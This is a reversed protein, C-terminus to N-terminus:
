KKTDIKSRKSATDSESAHLLDDVYFQNSICNKAEPSCNVVRLAQKLAYNAIAPSSVAGFVHVKLRYEVPLQNPDNKSFWFFRLFDYHQKPVKIQYFMKAIDGIIAVKEQCFRLLVALLSTTLDPGQLLESNLSTQHCKLSADFVIRLKKKQKHYVRQHVLYWINGVSGSLEADSVKEVFNNEIMSKMFEIYEISFDNNSLM